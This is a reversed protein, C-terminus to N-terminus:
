QGTSGFGGEGRETDGVYKTEVIGADEIYGVLLMQAIRYEHEVYYSTHGGNFLLIQLEGRYDLDIIGPANAVFISREALGSRSGIMPVVLQKSWATPVSGGFRLGTSIRKTTNPPIIAKIPRGSEGILYAYIDFGVSGPTSRTPLKVNPYMRQLRIM